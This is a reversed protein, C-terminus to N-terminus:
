KISIKKCKGISEGMKFYEYTPMEFLVPKFSRYDIKGEATVAWEEVYTNEIRLVFNEFADVRYVDDVSCEMIVPAQSIVPAGMQGLQYSFIESKDVEAGSVMGVYDAKALMAEDVLNVSLVNTKLIGKNTYHTNKLSVMIRDHSMIGIHGVLAWNPKGNVMVGIVALPTPYMANVSGLNKKM